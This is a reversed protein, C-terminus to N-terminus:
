KKLTDVLELIKKSDGAADKVAYRAAVKGNSDIVVTWRQATGERV